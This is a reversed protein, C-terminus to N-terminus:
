GYYAGLWAQVQTLKERRERWDPVSKEVLAWFDASHNMEKMHCLEHIIVYEIEQVPAALLRWSLNINKGDSCSGWKTKAGTISVREPRVGLTDALQYVMPILERKALKKMLDELTCRLSDAELQAPAYFFEGDFCVGYGELPRIEKWMGKYLIKRLDVTEPQRKEAEARYKRIWNEKEKLFKEIEVAPLRLPARVEVSGDALVRIALTKRDSRIVTYAFGEM